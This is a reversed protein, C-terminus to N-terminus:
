RVCDILHGTIANIIVEKLDFLRLYFSHIYDCPYQQRHYLGPTTVSYFSYFADYSNKDYLRCMLFCPCKQFECVSLKAHRPTYTKSIATDVHAHQKM